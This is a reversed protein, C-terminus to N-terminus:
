RPDFFFPPSQSITTFASSPRSSSQFDRLCVMTSRPMQEDTTIVDVACGFDIAPSSHTCAPVFIASTLRLRLRTADRTWTDHCCLLCVRVGTSMAAAAAVEEPEAHTGLRYWVVPDHTHRQCLICSPPPSFFKCWCGCFFIRKKHSNTCIKKM